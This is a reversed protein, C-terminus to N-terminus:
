ASTACWTSPSPGPTPRAGEAISTTVASINVTADDNLITTGASATDISLNPGPNSLNVTLQENSEPTGDGTLTLTITKSTEGPAFVVTGSPLHRRFRGRGGRLGDRRRQQRLRISDPHRHLHPDPQGAGTFGEVVSAQNASISVSGDDNLIQTSASAQAVGSGSLTVTLTEDPEVTRDGAITVTITKSTEGPAFDLTGSPCRVASIPQM